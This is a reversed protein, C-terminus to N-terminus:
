LTGQQQPKRTSGSRSALTNSSWDQVNGALQNTYTVDATVWM